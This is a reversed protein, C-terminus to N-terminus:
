VCWKGRLVTFDSIRLTMLLSVFSKPTVCLLKTNTAKKATNPQLLDTEMGAFSMAFGMMNSYDVSANVQPLGASIIEWTRKQAESVSLGANWVNKNHLVAYDKAEEVTLRLVGDIDATQQSFMQGCVILLGVMLITIKNKM